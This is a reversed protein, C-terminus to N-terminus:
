NLLVITSKSRDIKYRGHSPFQSLGLSTSSWGSHGKFAGCPEKWGKVKTTFGIWLTTNCFTCCWVKCSQQQNCGRDGFEGWLHEANKVGHELFTECRAWPQFKNLDLSLVSGARASNELPVACSWARDVRLGPDPMWSFHQLFWM